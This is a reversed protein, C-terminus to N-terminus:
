RDSVMSSWDPIQRERRSFLGAVPSEGHAGEELGPEGIEPRAIKDFDLADAPVGLQERGAHERRCAHLRKLIDEIEFVSRHRSHSLRPLTTIEILHLM